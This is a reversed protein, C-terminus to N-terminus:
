KQRQHEVSAINTIALYRPISHDTYAIFWAPPEGTESDAPPIDAHDATKINFRDGSNTVLTFPVFPTAGLQEALFDITFM